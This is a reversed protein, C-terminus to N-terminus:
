VAMEEATMLEEPQRHLDCIGLNDYSGEDSENYTM